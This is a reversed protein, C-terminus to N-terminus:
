PSMVFASVVRANGDTNKVSIQRTGSSWVRFTGTAPESTNGVGFASGASITTNASGTSSILAYANSDFKAQLFVLCGSLNAVDFTVTGGAPVLRSIVDFYAGLGENGTLKGIRAVQNSKLGGVNTDVTLTDAFGSNGWASLSAEMSFGSIVDRVLSPQHGAAYVNDHAVVKAAYPTVGGTARVYVLAREGTVGAVIESVFCGKIEAFNKDGNCNLSLVERVKGFIKINDLEHRSFLGTRPFVQAFKDLTTATDLYVECDSAVLGPRGYQTDSSSNICVGPQQGNKYSFVVGSGIVLSGTQADIESNGNGSTFGETREFYSAEVFTGRCQTKISRGYNNIYRAGGTSVFQSEVKGGGVADPVFYKIGDQDDQYALDSSYAKEIVSGNVVVRKVYSNVGYWDVSVCGIGIVGSTGQGSPLECDAYHGGNLQVQNFAGRITLGDGGNFSSSRKARRCIVNNAIFDSATALSTNNLIELPKNCLKGGDVEIDSLVIQVGATDTLRIAYEAHPGDYVIRAGNGEWIVDKTVTQAIPSTIRFNNGSLGVWLLPQQSALAAAVANRDNAVGDGVAGYDALSVSECMKALATRDVAGAGAQKFGIEGAGGPGALDDRLTPIQNTRLLNLADFSEKIQERALAPSDTGADVNATSIATTPWTM